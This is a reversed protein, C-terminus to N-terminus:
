HHFLAYVAAVCGIVAAITTLWGRLGRIREGWTRSREKAVATLESRVVTRMENPLTHMKEKVEELCDHQHAVEICLPALHPSEAALRM